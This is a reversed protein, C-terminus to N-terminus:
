GEQEKEFKLQEIYKKAKACLEFEEMEAVRGINLELAELYNSRKVLIDMNLNSLIGLSVVDVDEEIANCVAKVTSISIEHARQKAEEELEELNTAEFEIM